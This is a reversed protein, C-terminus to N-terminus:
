CLPELISSLWWIHPGTRGSEGQTTLASRGPWGAMPCANMHLLARQARQQVQPGTEPGGEM